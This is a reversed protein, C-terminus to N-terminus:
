EGSLDDADDKVGDKDEDDIIHVTYGNVDGEEDLGISYLVRMASDRLEELRESRWDCLECRYAIPDVERFLMRQRM